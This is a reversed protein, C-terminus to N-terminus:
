SKLKYQKALVTKKKAKSGQFYDIHWNGLHIEDDPKLELGEKDSVYITSHNRKVKTGISSINYLTVSNNYILLKAHSRSVTNKVMKRFFDVQEKDNTKLFNKVLSELGINKDHM